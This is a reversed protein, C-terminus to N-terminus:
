TQISVAKSVSEKNYFKTFLSDSDSDSHKLKGIANSMMTFILFRVLLNPDKDLLSKFQNISPAKKLVHYFHIGPQHLEIALPLSGPKLKQLIYM